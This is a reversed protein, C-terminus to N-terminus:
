VVIKLKHSHQFSRSTSVGEALIGLLSELRHSVEALNLDLVNLDEQVPALAASIASEMLAIVEPRPLGPIPVDPIHSPPDPIHEVPGPTDLHYDAPDITDHFSEGEKVQWVVKGAGEGDSLIDVGTTGFVFIDQSVTRGDPLTVTTGGKKALLKAGVAVAGRILFEAHRLGLPTPFQNRLGELIPIASKSDPVNNSGNPM